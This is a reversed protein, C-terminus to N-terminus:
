VTNGSRLFKLAWSTVHPAQGCQSPRHSGSSDRTCHKWPPLCHNSPKLSWGDWSSPTHGGRYSSVTFYRLDWFKQSSSQNCVGLDLTCYETFYLVSFHINYMVIQM